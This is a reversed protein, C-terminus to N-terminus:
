KPGILVGCKDYRWFQRFRRPLPDPVDGPRDFYQRLRLDVGGVQGITLSVADGVVQIGDERIEANELPM